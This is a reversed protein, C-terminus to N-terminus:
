NESGAAPFHARSSEYEELGFTAIMKDAREKVANKGYGHIKAMFELNERVTLKEAVSTDQPSIGTIRKVDEKATIVSSGCVEAEGSTPASLCTLMRVTTTKGAGNVGLLAFLEGERVTLDIADVATKTKYKKTLKRTTIADM